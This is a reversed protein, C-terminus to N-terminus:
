QEVSGCVPQVPIALVYRAHHGPFPGGHKEHVTDIQVGSRRLNHVYGSWRPAPNDIPTCGNPGAKILERLAWADRGCFSLQMEGTEAPVAVTLLDNPKRM